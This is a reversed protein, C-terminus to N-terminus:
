PVIQLLDGIEFSTKLEYKLEVLTCNPPSPNDEMEKWNPIEIGSLYLKSSVGVQYLKALHCMEIGSLYLKSGKGRWDWM